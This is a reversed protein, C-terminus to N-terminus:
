ISAMLSLVEASDIEPKQLAQTPTGNADAQTRLTEYKERFSDASKINDAWCFNRSGRRTRDNTAWLIVREIEQPDRKDRTIMLDIEKAYKNLARVKRNGRLYIYDPTYDLIQSALLGALRIAEANIPRAVKPKKEVPPPSPPLEESVAETEASPLEGDEAAVRARRTATKLRNKERDNEYRSLEDWIEESVGWMGNEFVALGMELMEGFVKECMTPEFRQSSCFGRVSIPRDNMLLYGSSDCRGALGFFRYVILEGTDGYDDRLESMRQDSFLSLPYTLYIKTTTKKV